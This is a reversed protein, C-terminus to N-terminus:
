TTVPREREANRQHDSDESAESTETDRTVSRVGAERARSLRGRPFLRSLGRDSSKAFIVNMLLLQISVYNSSPSLLVNSCFLAKYSSKYPGSVMEQKCSRLM